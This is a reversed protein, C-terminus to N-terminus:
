LIRGIQVTGVLHDLCNELSVKQQLTKVEGTLKVLVAKLDMVSDCLVVCTDVLDVNDVLLHETSDIVRKLVTWDEKLCNIRM